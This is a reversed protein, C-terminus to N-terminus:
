KKKWDTIQNYFLDIITSLFANNGFFQNYKSTQNIYFHDTAWVGLKSIM